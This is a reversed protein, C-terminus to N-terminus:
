NQLKFILAKPYLWLEKGSKIFTDDEIKKRICVYKMNQFDANSNPWNLITSNLKNFNVTGDKRLLNDCSIFDMQAERNVKKLDDYLWIKDNGEYESIGGNVGLANYFLSKLEDDSKSLSSKIQKLLSSYDNVAKINFNKSLDFYNTKLNNSIKNRNIIIKIPDVDKKYYFSNDKANIYITVQEKNIDIKLFDVQTWMIHKYNEKVINIFDKSSTRKSYEDNYIDIENSKGYWPKQSYEDNIKNLYSSLYKKNYSKKWYFENNKFLDDKYLDTKDAQNDIIDKKSIFNFKNNSNDNETKVVRKYTKIEDLIPLACGNIDFLGKNWWTSGLKYGNHNNNRLYDVGEYTAWSTKGKLLWGPEWWYYGVKSNPLAKSITNLFVNFLYVSGESSVPARKISDAYSMQDNSTDGIYSDNTAAYVSSYEMILTDKNYNSKIYRMSDFLDDMDHWNWQPYFSLGIYDVNKFVYKNEMFKNLPYKFSKINSCDLHIITKIALKNKIDFNKVAKIGNELYSQTEGFNYKSNTWLFGRSIENGIQVASIYQSLGVKTFNELVQNTYEYVLKAIETASKHEWKKPPKQVQPDAWFDSYQFDIFFDHIGEKKAQKMIWIDTDIDNHGGGYSNGKDDYPDNWLRLRISNVGKWKLIKFFNDYKLTGNEDIYSYLNQNIYNEQEEDIDKYRYKSYGKEFLFNEVVEAYSSTDCGNIIDNNKAIVKSRHNDEKHSSCNILAIFPCLTLIILLTIKLIKNM